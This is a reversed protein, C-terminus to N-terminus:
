TYLDVVIKYFDNNYQKKNNENKVPGM